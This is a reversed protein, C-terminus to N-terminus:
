PDASLEPAKTDSDGLRRPVHIFFRFFYINRGPSSVISDRQVYHRDIEQLVAIPEYVRSTILTAYRKERVAKAFTDWTLIGMRSCQFLMSGDQEVYGQRKYAYSVHRDMYLPLTTASTIQELRHADARDAQNPVSFPPILYSRFTYLVILGVLIAKPQIAERRQLLDNLLVASSVAMLPLAPGIYGTNAERKTLAVFTLLTWCILASDACRLTTIGRRARVLAGSLGAVVMFSDERLIERFRLADWWDMILYRFPAILYFLLHGGSFFDYLALVGGTILVTMGGVAAAASPRRAGLAVLIPLLSVAATQKALIACSLALAIGLLGGRSGKWADTWLTALTAFLIMLADTRMALIFLPTSLIASFVVSTELVGLGFRRRGYEATMLATLLMSVVAIARLPPFQPGFLGMLPAGLAAFLPTYLNPVLEYDYPSFYIPDGKWLAVAHVLFEAEGADAIDEPVRAYAIRGSFIACAHLVILLALAHTVIRVMAGNDNGV